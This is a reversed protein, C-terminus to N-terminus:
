DKRKVHIFRYRGLTLLYDTLAEYEWDKFKFKPMRVDAQISQPDKLWQEFWEKTLRSAVDTHDPGIQGGEGDIRHCGICAFIEHYLKDGDTIDEPQVEKKPAFPYPYPIDSLFALYEIISNIEKESLKFDQMRAKLIQEPRIKYPHKLFGSLWELRSKKAEKTLDTSIDGGKKNLKHCGLCNYKEFVKKGRSEAGDPDILTKRYKVPVDDSRLSLLFTVLARAQQENLGQNPMRAIVKDTAFKEPNMVKILLWDAVTKKVDTINGWFVEDLRKSGIGDLPPADYWAPFKEIEHCGRCGFTKVLKEGKEINEQLSKGQYGSTKKIEERKKKLTMLYAVTDQIEERSMAPDPMTTKPQIKGPKKLFQFLWEPKIKSGIDSLDSSFESGKKDIAHCGLCGITNVLKKGEVSDGKEPLGSSSGFDPRGEPYKYGASLSLLYDAICSIEEDSLKFRPMKTKELYDKPNKLWMILWDRDTKNKILDLITGIRGPVEYGKLKHCAICNYENFLKWGEIFVEAGQLEATLPLRQDMPHCKGCSSQAFFGRLIPKTWNKEDGHADDVTLAAGQGDHCSVCGFKKVKHHKLYDGSHTKFPQPKDSFGPKDIGQHCTICRDAENLDQLYIQQIKEKQYKKWPRDYEAYIAWIIVALLSLCLFANIILQNRTLKM